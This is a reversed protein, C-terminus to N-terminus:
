KNYIERILKLAQYEYFPFNREPLYEKYTYLCEYFEGKVKLISIDNKVAIKILELNIEEELTKIMRDMSVM